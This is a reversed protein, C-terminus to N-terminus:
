DVCQSPERVYVKFESRSMQLSKAKCYKYDFGELKHVLAINVYFSFALICLSCAIVLGVGYVKYVTKLKVFTTIHFLPLLLIILYVGVGSQLEILPQKAATQTAIRFWETVVYYCVAIAVIDFGLFIGHAFSKTM